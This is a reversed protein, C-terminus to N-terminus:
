EAGRRTLEEELRKFFTQAERCDQVGFWQGSCIVDFTLDSEDLEAKIVAGMADTILTASTFGRQNTEIAM